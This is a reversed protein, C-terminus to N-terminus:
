YGPDCIPCSRFYRLTRLEQLGEVHAVAFLDESTEDRLTKFYNREETEWVRLTSLDVELVRLSEVLKPTHDHIIELAQLYNDYLMSGLATYKEGDYQQFFMHILARRRYASAFRTVAALENSKSFTRELTELDELGIGEIVNPHHQVRSGGAKFKAGLSSNGLTTQFVCGIDFGVLVKELYKRKKEDKAAAKWNTACATDPAGDTPDGETDEDGWDSYAADDDIVEGNLHEPVEVHLQSQRSKVENAFRDVFETPLYYGYEIRFHVYPGPNPDGDLLEEAM